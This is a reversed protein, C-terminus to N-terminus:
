MPEIASLKEHDLVAFGDKNFSAAPVFKYNFILDKEVYSHLQFVRQSFSDEHYEVLVYWEMQLSKIEDDSLDFLPSGEKIEHVVTWTTALYKINERQLKLEYFERQAIGKKDSKTIIMTLSIAPDIMVTPRNNMLRFMIANGKKFERLVINDSFKLSAKPKSFRGYLLGTIFSFSLLGILAEFSSVVNALLGHPSIGGYGVTTITQASFFFGNLFDKFTNGSLTTIEEIGIITYIAGFLANILIYGLLVMLFFRSWSIQILYSYTDQFSFKKNQHIITSEGKKNVIRQANRDSSYGFGPDKIKRM